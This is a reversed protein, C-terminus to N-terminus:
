YDCGNIRSVVVGILERELRSLPSPAHMAQAYLRAHGELADPSLAHLKLVNDVSGDPNAFRRYLEALKGTANPPDITRIYAM